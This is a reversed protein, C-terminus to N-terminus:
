QRLDFLSETTEKGRIVQVRQVIGNRNGPAQVVGSADSDWTMSREPVAQGAADLAAQTVSPPENPDSAISRLSLSLSGLEAVLALMEAQKPLVELTATQAVKPETMQDNTKQDLALVRVNTLMTEAVKRGSPDSDTKRSVQHTVIVDVHDGPFVFGAVGGVPTIAVSVARKGPSLVAAMFGQDAKRMVRGAMLPEGMRLGQRVVAGTYDEVTAKGKVAFAETAGDEPWTQWKVDGDKLLSGAHLDRAAVLVETTPKAEEVAASVGNKASMMSRAVVVTGIAILFAVALLILKRTPM